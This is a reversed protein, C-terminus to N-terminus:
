PFGMTPATRLASGTQGTWSPLNAISILRITAAAAPAFEPTMWPEIIESSSLKRVGCRWSLPFNDSEFDKISYLPCPRRPSEQNNRAPTYSKREQKKLVEVCVPKMGVNMLSLGLDFLMPNAKYSNNLNEMYQNLFKFVAPSCINNDADLNILATYKDNFTIWLEIPLSRIINANLDQNLVANYLTEILHYEKM